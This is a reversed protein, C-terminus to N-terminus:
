ACDRPKLTRRKSSADIAGPATAAATPTIASVPVRFGNTLLAVVAPTELPRGDIPQPKQDPANDPATAPAPNTSYQSWVHYLWGALTAVAAITLSPTNPRDILAVAVAVVGTM